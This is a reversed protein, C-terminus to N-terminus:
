AGAHEPQQALQAELWAQLNGMYVKRGVHAFTIGPDVWVKGGLARWRRCFVMDEGWYEGGSMEFDFLAWAQGGPVHDQRYAHHAYQERMMELCRRTIRMFGTPAGAVEVLGSGEQIIPKGPLWRVPFSLPDQRKPYVGAIVDGKHAMLRSMAGHEWQVDEDVFILDTCDSALFSAVFMNRCRSIISDGPNFRIKVDVGKSKLDLVGEVLSHAMEVKVTGTYCPIALYVSRGEIM